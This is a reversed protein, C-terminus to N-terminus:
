LKNLPKLHFDQKKLVIKSADENFNYTITHSIGKLRNKIECMCNEAMTICEFESNGITNIQYKPSANYPTEAQAGTNCYNLVYKLKTIADDDYIYLKFIFGIQLSTHTIRSKMNQVFAVCEKPYKNELDVVIKEPSKLFNTYMYMLGNESSESLEKSITIQDNTESDFFNWITDNYVDESSLGSIIILDDALSKISTLTTFNHLLTDRIKYDVRKYSLEVIKESVSMVILPYIKNYTFQKEASLVRRDLETNSVFGEINDYELLEFYGGMTSFYKLIGFVIKTTTPLKTGYYLVM